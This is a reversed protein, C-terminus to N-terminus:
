PGEACLRAVLEVAERPDGGLDLHWVPVARALAALPALAAGGDPPLQLVTTPALAMLAQAATAPRLRTPSGPVPRPLVLARVDLARVLRDGHLAGVDVVRKAGDYASPHVPPLGPLLAASEATLKATGYVSHARVGTGTATEAGTEVLVYDDGAYQLGAQLAAVATTSKGSGGPGALLVGSGGTGVCAAHVLLRRPGRLAWHLLTRLPAAREWWPVRDRDLVWFLAEGTSRRVLSLARFDGDLAMLDGHFVTSVDDDSVGAVLGRHGVDPAQWPFRPPAVGTSGSDFLRVELAADGPPVRLHGLAMTLDPVLEEGAFALRLRVGGVDLDVDHRGRRRAAEQWSASAADFWAGAATVTGTSM